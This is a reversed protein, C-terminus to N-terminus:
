EVEYNREKLNKIIADYTENALARVEQWEPSNVIAEDDGEKFQDTTVDDFHCFKNYFTKIKQFVFNNVGEHQKPNKLIEECHNLFVMTDEEYDFNTEGREKIWVREQYDADGLPKLIHKLFTILNIIPSMQM